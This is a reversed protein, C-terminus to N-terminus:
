QTATFIIALENKMVADGFFRPANRKEENGFKRQAYHHELGTEFRINQFTQDGDRWMSLTLIM